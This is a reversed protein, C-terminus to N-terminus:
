IASLFQCHLEEVGLLVDNSFHVITRGTGLATADRTYQRQM